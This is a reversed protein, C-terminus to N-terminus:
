EVFTKYEKVPTIGLSSRNSLFIFLTFFSILIAQFLLIALALVSYTAWGPIAMNTTFRIGVVIVIGLLSFLISTLSFLIIRTTVIDAFIAIGSLGHIILQTFNMKSEGQYRKGRVTPLRNFPIKLKLFAIAYNNWLNSEHVLSKVVSGKIVSFNGFNVRHDCLLQFIFKYLLYFVRFVFGESRKSRKAFVSSNQSKAEALLRFLEQPKDEGDSDMVGVWESQINEYAYCLGTAIARQHGMNKVLRIISITLNPYREKEFFREELSHDDVLVVSVQGLDSQSVLLDIEQFLRNSCDWDNYQPIILTLNSKLM